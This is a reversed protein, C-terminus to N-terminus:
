QIRDSSTIVEDAQVGGDVFGRDKPDDGSGAERRERGGQDFDALADGSIWTQAAARRGAASRGKGPRRRLRDVLEYDLEGESLAAKIKPPLTKGRAQKIQRDNLSGCKFTGLVFSPRSGDATFRSRLRLKIHTGSVLQKFELEVRYVDNDLTDDLDPGNTIQGEDLAEIEAGLKDHELDPTNAPPIQPKISSEEPKAFVGTDFVGAKQGADSDPFTPKKGEVEIETDGAPKQADGDLKGASESGALLGPDGDPNGSRSEGIALRSVSQEVSSQEAQEDGSEKHFDEGAV